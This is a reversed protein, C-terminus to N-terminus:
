SLTGLRSKLQRLGPFRSILEANGVILGFVERVQEFGARLLFASNRGYSKAGLIFFNPEPNRLAAAGPSATSVGDGGPSKLLAGALNMLGFSAYCEQVQLERYLSNDPSYGVNAILRDAEWTRLKGSCHAHVKFGKDPGACEIASLVTQAHFEVTGDGRTALM